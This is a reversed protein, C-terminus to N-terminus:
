VLFRKIAAALGGHDVDLTVYDAVAKVEDPANEMAIALGATSLLSIDNTGDGVAVVESLSVGVHLALAILAEGKSVEPDVVNIFEIGPFAPSRAVSFRLRGQFQRRLKEAKAAEEASYTVLNAKLITERNWLKIFDALTPEIGMLKSHIRTAQTEREIFYETSSFLELYIDNLRAFEVAQKVMEKSLPHAYVEDGQDPDSVLAGDFFIHYGDLSLERIIGLCARSVRGTSLSVRIGSCSAEAVAERSEASIAGNRGVLTGDIDVILLKYKM